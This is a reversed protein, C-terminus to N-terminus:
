KISSLKTQLEALLAKEEKLKKEADTQDVKNDAIKGELNKLEKEYDIGKSVQNKLSRDADEVARVQKDIDYKIQAILANKDMNNLLNIMGRVTASDSQSNVFNDYGKSVLITLKSENKGGTTIAYLDIKDPSIEPINVGKYVRYGGKVRDGKRIKYTALKETWAQDLLDESVSYSSTVCPQEAKLLTVKSEQANQALLSSFGISLFFTTLIIQKM